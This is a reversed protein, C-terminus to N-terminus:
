LKKPPDPPPFHGDISSPARQLQRERSYLREGLGGLRRGAQKDCVGARLRQQDCRTARILVTFEDIKM